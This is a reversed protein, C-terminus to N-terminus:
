GFKPPPVPILRPTGLRSRLGWMKGREGKHSGIEREKLATGFAHQTAPEQERDEVACWTTFQAFLEAALTGDRAPCTQMTALWQGLADQSDVYELTAERVEAPLGLGHTYYKVAGAVMWALIGEAEGSRHTGTGTLTAALTKDGNPLKPDPKPEDPRNWKRRFPTFHLRSQVAQDLHDIKPKLNALMAVKHSM